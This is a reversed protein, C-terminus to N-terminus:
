NRLALEEYLRATESAVTRRSFRACRRLGRARLDQRLEDDQLLRNMAMRVEQADRPDSLLIGADGVVEPLATMSSAIVPLGCSMAELLVIGFGEHVSPFVLFQAAGYLAPLDDDPVSGTFVVRDSLGLREVYGPLDEGKCQEYVRGVLVLAGQYADHKVLLAFADLLSTLNKKPSISGVHLIMDEPLGYRRRADSIAEAGVPRYRPHCACPIVVIKERPLGYFRVLDEATNNSIAIIRDVSRLTLRQLTRWYCVDTWAFYGPHALFTLDYMTIVSRGPTFFTGLNKTFHVLDIGERRFLVPFVLQAWARVLMRHRIPTILQRVNGGYRTLSPEERDLVLLYRNSRDVEFLPELLNLTATRGGGPRSIGIADIAIYM